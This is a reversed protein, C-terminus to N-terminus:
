SATKKLHASGEMMHSLWERGSHNEVYNILAIVIRRDFAKDSDELLYKNAQDVPIADRWARPSIMGVFANAVAIIRASVLISEHKLELPGKGDWREQWQRLTDEVPGDFSIGHLMESAANMSDRVIAKEEETFNGTKTLLETPVVIKGINMLQAATQTTEVMVPELAISLAVEYAVKAVLQSHNASFPDRKDVLTTLMNVLQQSTKVRREREHMIETIDQEVVLAGRSKGSVGQVPVYKLPVFASRVVREEDGQGSRFIDYGVSNDELAQMCQGGIQVAREKGVVDQLPKGTLSGPTMGADVAAQLNAFHVVNSTDVIMISEPQYDTVLQLLVEQSRSQAALKRFYRSMLIARKSYAYWWIAIIIMIIFAIMLLFFTMMSVRRDNGAAYAEMRDIKVIMVWPTNNITRSTGLVPHDAYDKQMMVFSGTNNILKVESYREPDFDNAKSLPSTGDQLPSLYEIKNNSRRVLITELTKETVGPHKLLSFFNSDAAIVGAVSGIQSKPSRDGQISYVPVVFGMYAQGDSGKYIDIFGEQGAPTKKVNALMLDRTDASLITSVVLEGKSNIIAVGSKSEPTVNAPINSMNSRTIFGAREASFVLLNRLYSRPAPEEAGEKKNPAQDGMMQLETMYVQLSPNDALHRLESFHDSIWNNVESARSEAILNLKEQWTTQDRKFDINTYRSVLWLGSLILATVLLAIGYLKPAFNPNDQPTHHASESM